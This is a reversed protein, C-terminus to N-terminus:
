CRIFCAMFNLITLILCVRTNMCVKLFVVSREFDEKTFLESVFALDKGKYKEMRAFAHTPRQVSFPGNSDQCKRNLKGVRSLCLDFEGGGPPRM